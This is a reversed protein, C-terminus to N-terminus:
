QIPKIPTRLLHKTLNQNCGRVTSEIERDGKDKGEYWLPEGTELDLYTLQEHMRELSPADPGLPYFYYTSTTAIEAARRGEFMVLRNATGVVKSQPATDPSGTPNTGVQEWREGIVIEKPVLWHPVDSISMARRADNVQIVRQTELVKNTEDDLYYRGAAFLQLVPVHIGDKTFCMDRGIWKEKILVRTEDPLEVTEYAAVLVATMDTSIAGARWPLQSGKFQAEGKDTDHAGKESSGANVYKTSAIMQERWRKPRPIRVSPSETALPKINFHNLAFASAVLQNREESTREALPQWKQMAAPAPVAQRRMVVWYFYALNAIVFPVVLAVKVKRTFM